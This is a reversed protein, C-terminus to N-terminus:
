EFFKFYSSLLNVNYNNEKIFLYIGKWNVIGINIIGVIFVGREKCYRLVNLIDVTEGLFIILM